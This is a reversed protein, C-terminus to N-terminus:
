APLKKRAIIINQVTQGCTCKIVKYTVAENGIVTEHTTSGGKTDHRHGM